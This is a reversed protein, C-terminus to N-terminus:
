PIVSHEDHRPAMITDALEESAVDDPDKIFQDAFDENEYAELGGMTNTSIDLPSEVLSSGNPYVISNMGQIPFLQHEGVLDPTTHIAGDGLEPHERTALNLSGIVVERIIGDPLILNPDYLQSDEDL